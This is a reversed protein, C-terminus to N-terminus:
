DPVVLEEQLDFLRLKLYKLMVARMEEAFKDELNGKNAFAINFGRLYADYVADEEYLALPDHAKGSIEIRFRTMKNSSLLLILEHAEDVLTAVQGFKQAQEITIQKM